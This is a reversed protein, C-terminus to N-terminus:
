QSGNVTAEKKRRNFEALALDRASTSEKDQDTSLPWFSQPSSKKNKGMSHVHIIYGLARVQEWSVGANVRYGEIVTQLDCVYKDDLEWPKIGAQACM